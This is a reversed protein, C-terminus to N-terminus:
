EMPQLVIWAQNLYSCQCGSTADPVMVLGGAPIANIWCGPRLGGYDVVGKPSELDYYGLTASRFVMLNACGALQGCGYSRKLDFPRAAGTLLDWAGGQAYVIKDNILPRTVYKAEADWLREGTSAKFAALRGGVESALKFRTPQYSMLLVDHANSLALVTGYVNQKSRWKEKGTAADLVLLEGGPHEPGADKKTKDVKDITPRDKEALPRDILHVKGGGIAVANHRISHKARYTWKVKGTVPDMAFLATSESFLQDMDAARYAFKVVHKTDALSGFLVGHDLAIYGWTAPKGDPGPPADFEGLKKGTAPDIRLCKSGTRVFLGEAGVCYNGHTAATGVLHEGHYPKLVGPLPYEWLKRGNYADVARLSNMGEVFLRGDHFLPAPGRGHRQPSELDSDRFWLMGLKGHVLVDTSCSTNAPDAYQHTWQGAGDLPGRVTKKLAGAKGLLAVGGFPRQIRSTERTVDKDAGTTLGRGSVVLDAFYNAYNTRAPNGLHVTVRTGYMGAAALQRRAAAVNVPDSDIAYVNLNTRKAIEYALAGDGCALDACFGETVGSHRIIDAAAASAAQNDGYVQEKVPAQHVVPERDRPPGFCYITGRDTSVFLRDDAAALGHAVGDLKASWVPRKTESDAMTVTKDGGCVICSGAVIVSSGGAVGPITWLKELGKYRFLELKLKDKKTKEAWKYAVVDKATSVILGDPVAAVEGAGVPDLIKGTQADYTFGANFFHPGIAMVSSGGKHANAQLHFYRFKGTARDFVAPVARGTAVLLQDENVVLYGQAAVGSAAYAGGHPQGMFISGSEDNCWIVKGTAADLAYLYIGESPWIGAAFYVTDEHIVPGGRAPWRSIMRDNGLVMSDRPGGQQKWLLKGDAAALCYLWGDDSAAFVRDKWLAPAFRIPGGTFFTWREQGTAADLAHVQCDASSGYFLMGGAVVPHYARDFGLRTSAPWAPTPAQGSKVVWHLSLKAPLAQLARGHRAANGKYTPWDAAQVPLAVLLLVLSTTWSPKM